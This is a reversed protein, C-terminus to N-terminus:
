RPGPHLDLGPSHAPVLRDLLPRLGTHLGPLLRVLQPLHDADSSAGCLGLCLSRPRCQGSAGAAGGLVNQLGRLSRWQAPAEAALLRWDGAPLVEGADGEGPRM